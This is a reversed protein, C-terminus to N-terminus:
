GSGSQSRAILIGKRKELQIKKEYNFVQIVKATLNKEPKRKKFSERGAAGSLKQDSKADEIGKAETASKMAAAPQCSATKSIAYNMEYGSSRVQGVSEIGSTEFTIRCQPMGSDTWRTELGPDAKIPRNLLESLTLGAPVASTVPNMNLGQFDQTHAPSWALLGLETFYSQDQEQQPQQVQLQKHQWQMIMRQRELVSMEMGKVEAVTGAMNLYHLMEPSDKNM